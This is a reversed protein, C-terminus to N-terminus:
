SLACSAHGVHVCSMVPTLNKMVMVALCVLMATCRSLAAQQAASLCAASDQDEGALMVEVYLKEGSSSGKGSAALRKCRQLEQQQVHATM